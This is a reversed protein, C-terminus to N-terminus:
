TPVLSKNITYIIFNALQHCLACVESKIGYEINTTFFNEIKLGLKFYITLLFVYKPGKLTRLM